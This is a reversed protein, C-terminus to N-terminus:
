NYMPANTSQRQTRPRTAPKPSSAGLAPALPAMYYEQADKWSIWPQKTAKTKAKIAESHQQNYRRSEVLSQRQKANSEELLRWFNQMGVLKRERILALAGELAQEKSQTSAPQPEPDIQVVEIEPEKIKQEIQKLSWYDMAQKPRLRKQAPDLLSLGTFRAQSLKPDYLRQLVQRSQLTPAALGGIQEEDSSDLEM